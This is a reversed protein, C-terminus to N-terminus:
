QCISNMVSYKCISYMDPSQRDLIRDTIIRNRGCLGNESTLNKGAM